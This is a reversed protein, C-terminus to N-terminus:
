RVWVLPNYFNWRARPLNDLSLYTKQKSLKFQETLDFNIFIFILILFYVVNLM